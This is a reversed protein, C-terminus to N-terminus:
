EVYLILGKLYDGEPHFINIPHDAPQSLYGMVRVNRGAEIAASTITNSFTYKDVVQSCSFTFLIGGKKIRKLATQNLRKYGMIASHKASLHKAFAPPDLIIIDYNNENNKFFDFVDTCFSQHKSTGNNLEINKDTLEIAKKSADVSHVETAGNNLAYVSFGGTYCFTNLVSKNKAYSSLINRNDRQDIFFGTKQGTEWDIFFKNNNEIVINEPEESKYLYENQATKIIKDSKYYIAKIENGFVTKLSEAINEKINHIGITHSQIVATKGYIDIILGTINDGEAHCLRYVNTESNNILGINKRYNYASQIKKDWFSQDINVDEFSFLRVAISGNNYFGTGLFENSNSYVKVIEGDVLNETNSKIAGSFIWPHFRKVSSEKDKKLVIKNLVM